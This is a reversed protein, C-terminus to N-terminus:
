RESKTGGSVTDELRLAHQLSQLSVHGGLLLVASVGEPVILVDHGDVGLLSLLHFELHTDSLTSSALVAQKRGTLFVYLVNAAGM